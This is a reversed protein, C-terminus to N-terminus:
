AAGGTVRLADREAKVAEFIDGRVYSLTGLIVPVDSIVSATKNGNFDIIVEEPALTQPQKM